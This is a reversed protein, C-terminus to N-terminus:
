RGALKAVVPRFDDAVGEGVVLYSIGYRDWRIRSEDYDRRM